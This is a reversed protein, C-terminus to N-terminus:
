YFDSVDYITVLNISCTTEFNSVPISSEMTDDTALYVYKAGYLSTDGWGDAFISLTTPTQIRTAAMDKLVMTHLTTISSLNLEALLPLSEFHLKGIATGGVPLTLQTLSECDSVTLDNSFISSSTVGSGMFTSPLDLITLSANNVVKLTTLLSANSLDIGNPTDVNEITLSKINYNPKLYTMEYPTSESARIVVRGEPGSYSPNSIIYEVGELSSYEGTLVLDVEETLTNTLDIYGSTNFLSPYLDMLDAKLQISPVSRLYTYSEVFNGDVDVLSLEASLGVESKAFSVVEGMNWKVSEPFLIKKLNPRPVSGSVSMILGSYTDVSENDSLDVIQITEPLERFNFSSGFNNSRLNVQTLNEFALLGSASTLGRNSLDLYTTALVMDDCILSSGDYSYGMDRLAANLEVNEIPEVIAGLNDDVEDKTCSAFIALAAVIVFKYLYKRM